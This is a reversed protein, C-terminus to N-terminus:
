TKIFEGNLTYQNVARGQTRINGKRINEIHEETKIKGKHSTSIKQKVEEPRPVGKLKESKKM